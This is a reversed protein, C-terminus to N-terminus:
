YVWLGEVKIVEYNKDQDLTWLFHRGYIDIGAYRLTGPGTIIYSIGVAKAQFRHHRPDCYDYQSNLYDNLLVREKKPLRRALSDKLKQLFPNFFLISKTQLVPGIRLPDVLATEVPFLKDSYPEPLDHGGLHYQLFRLTDYDFRALDNIRSKYRNTDTLIMNTADKAPVLKRLSIFQPQFITHKMSKYRYITDSIFRIKRDVVELIRIVEPDAQVTTFRNMTSFLVSDTVSPSFRSQAAAQCCYVSFLISLFVRM